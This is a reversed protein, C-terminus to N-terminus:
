DEEVNLIVADDSFKKIKGKYTELEIEKCHLYHTILKVNNVEEIIGMKDMIKVLM